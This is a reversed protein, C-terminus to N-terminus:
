PITGGVVCTDHDPWCGPAHIDLMELGGPGAEFSHTTGPPLRLFVGPVLPHEVSNLWTRGGGSTVLYLEESRAHYSVPTRVGAEIRVRWATTAGQEARSILPELRYPGLAHSTGSDGPARVLVQYQPDISSM